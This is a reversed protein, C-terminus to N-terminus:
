DELEIVLEVEVFVSFEDLCRHAPGGNVGGVLYPLVHLGHTQDMYLAARAHGPNHADKVDGM